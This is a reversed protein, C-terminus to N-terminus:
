PAGPASRDAAARLQERYRGWRALLRASLIAALTAVLSAVLGPLLVDAPVAAGAKARLAIVTAPVLTVNATNIALFLAQADSTVGAKPNLRSLEEMAKIGLPTAANGLGLMNAAINMTIAALAPHDRPVEPFLWRVVPGVARGLSAMAGARELIRVLGLWLALAGTLGIAVDVADAVGKFLGASLGQANGTLAAFAVATALLAAFIVNM